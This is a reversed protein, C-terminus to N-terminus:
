TKIRNLNLKLYDQTTCNKLFFLNIYFKIRLFFFQSVVVVLYLTTQKIKLLETLSERFNQTIKELKNETINVLLTLAVFKKKQGRGPCM